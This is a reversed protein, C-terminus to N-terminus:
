AVLLNCTRPSTACAYRQHPSTPAYWFGCSAEGPAEELTPQGSEADDPLHACGAAQLAEGHGREMTDRKIFGLAQQYLLRFAAAIPAAGRVRQAGMKNREGKKPSLRRLGTVHFKQSTHALFRPSGSHLLSPFGKSYMWKLMWEGACRRLATYSDNPPRDCRPNSATRQRGPNYLVHAPAAYKWDKRLIDGIEHLPM